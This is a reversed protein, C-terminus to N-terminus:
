RPTKYKKQEDLLTTKLKELDGADLNTKAAGLMGMFHAIENDELPFGVNSGAPDKPNPANSNALPKGEGDLFVFWPIGGSHGQSMEELMAKGGANRDQDITLTVFAKGLIPSVDDRDMWKAMMRCYGCWPASFKLFLRKNTEKARALAASYLDAASTTKSENKKLCEMLKAADHGPKSKDALEFQETDENTIAKGDAGLITLYPVGKFDAGLEKALDKNKDFRGIDVLVVNYEYLLEKALAPDKAMKEHLLHCWGCWNAGWQVLVRKENKKADAV